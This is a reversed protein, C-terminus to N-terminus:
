LFGDSNGIRLWIFGTWVNGGKKRLILVLILKRDVDLDESNARGKLNRSWCKTHM